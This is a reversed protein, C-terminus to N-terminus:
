GFGARAGNLDVAGWKLAGEDLISPLHQKPIVVMHIEALSQPHHFALVRDDEWDVDLEGSLVDEYYWDRRM